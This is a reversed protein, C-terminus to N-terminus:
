EAGGDASKVLLFKMDAGDAEVRYIHPHKVPAGDPTWRAAGTVGEFPGGNLLAERVESSKLSGANAIAKALATFADYALAAFRDPADGPEGAFAKAFEAARPSTGDPAYSAYLLSDRVAAGGEDLFAQIFLDEGGLFPATIGAERAARALRVAEDADGTYIIAQPPEAAGALAEVVRALDTAGSFSDYTDTDVTITGGHKAVAQKFLASLTLSHDYASSTVLAYTRYGLQSSAFLVLDDTAIEDPLAYRFVYAGSRGIRRRTGVSILITGSENARHTPAFTSWGTPASFIAIVNQKILEEVAGLTLEPDGRTDYHVVEIGSGIGGRAELHRAAMAIGALVQRGFDAEEGTEPGIVGVKLTREAEVPAKPEPGPEPAAMWDPRANVPATEVPRGAWDGLLFYSFAMGATFIAIGAAILLGYKKMNSSNM